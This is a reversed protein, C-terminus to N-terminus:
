SITAGRVRQVLHRQLHLLGSAQGSWYGATRRPNSASTASTQRNGEDGHM